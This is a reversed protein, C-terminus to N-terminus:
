EAERQTVAHFSWGRLSPTPSVHVAKHSTLVGEGGGVGVEVEGEGVRRREEHGRVEEGREEEGTRVEAGAGAPEGERKWYGNERERERPRVSVREVGM